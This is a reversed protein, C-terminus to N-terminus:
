GRLKFIACNPDNVPVVEGREDLQRKLAPSRGLSALSQEPFVIYQAGNSELSTLSTPATQEGSGEDGFVFRVVPRGRLADM